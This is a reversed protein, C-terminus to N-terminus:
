GAPTDTLEVVATLDSDEWGAAATEALRQAVLEAVPLARKHLHATAAALRADKGALAPGWWATHRHDVVADVRNAIGAPVMPNTSLFDRLAEAEIGSSLALTVAEALTTVASVLLLNNTLKLVLAHEVSGCYRHRGSLHTWLQEHATVVDERGGLLVTAQGASMLPPAGLIPMSLFREAGVAEYLNTATAPSVTSADVLLAGPELAALLGTDLVVSRVADDDALSTLVVEAGAAADAASAAERAGHEVLLAARGPTRNWVAVEHGTALLRGAVASGMRGLGLVAIREM